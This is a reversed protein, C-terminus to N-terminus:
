SDVPETVRGKFWRSALWGGTWIMPFVIVIQLLFAILLLGLFLSIDVADGNLSNITVQALESQPAFVTFIAAGLAFVVMMALCGGLSIRFLEKRAPRRKETGVFFLGTVLSTSLVFMLFGIFPNTILQFAQFLLFNVFVSALYFLGFWLSYKLTSAGVPTKADDTM